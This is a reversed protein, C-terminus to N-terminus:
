DAHGNKRDRTRWWWVWVLFALVGALVLLGRNLTSLEALLSDLHRGTTAGVWVLVGYWVASALALPVAVPLFRQHSVGAFAPVVARFGPHFRTLFIAPTGWRRYFGRIRDLQGGHLIFRGMGNEFFAAGHRHGIWYVVLASAVNCVWTVGFVVWPNLHGRGALFGGFLIFTDAPVPPFFNEVASGLGLIGYLVGSPLDTFFSQVTHM